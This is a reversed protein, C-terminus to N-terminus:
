QHGVQWGACRGQDLNEDFGPRLALATASGLGLGVFMLGALRLIDAAVGANSSSAWAVAVAAGAITPSWVAVHSRLTAPFVPVHAASSAMWRQRGYRWLLMLCLATGGVHGIYQVVRFVTWGQGLFEGDVVTDGYWSM